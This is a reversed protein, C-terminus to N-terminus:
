PVLAGPLAPRWAAQNLADAWVGEFLDQGESMFGSATLASCLGAAALSGPVGGAAADKDAGVEARFSGFHFVIDPRRAQTPNRANQQELRM